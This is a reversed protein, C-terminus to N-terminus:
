GNILSTNTSKYSEREQIKKVSNRRKRRRKVVSIFLHLNPPTERSTQTSSTSKNKATSNLKPTLDGHYGTHPRGWDEQHGYRLRSVHGLSTHVWTYQLKARTPIWLLICKTAKQIDLSLQGKGHHFNFLDVFKHKFQASILGTGGIASRDKTKFFSHTLCM